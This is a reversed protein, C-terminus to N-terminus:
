AKPILEVHRLACVKETGDIASLALEYQCFLKQLLHLLHVLVTATM